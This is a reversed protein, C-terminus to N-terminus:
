IAFSSTTSGPEGVDARDPYNEEEATEGRALSQNCPQRDKVERNHEEKERHLSRRIKRSIERQIRSSQRFLIANQLVKDGIKPAWNRRRLNDYKQPKQFSQAIKIKALELAERLKQIRKYLEDRLPQNAQQGVSGPCKLERGFNLYAPAHETSEHQATNNAFELEPLYKDWTKQNKTVNRAMM